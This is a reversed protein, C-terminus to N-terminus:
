VAGRLTAYASLVGAVQMGLGLARIAVHGDIGHQVLAGAAILGGAGVYEATNTGGGFRGLAVNLGKNGALVGASAALPYIIANANM